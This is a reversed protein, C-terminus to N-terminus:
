NYKKQMSDVIPIGDEWFALNLPVAFINIMYCRYVHCIYGVWAFIRGGKEALLRPKNPSQATKM